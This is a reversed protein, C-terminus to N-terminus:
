LAGLVPQAIGEPVLSQLLYKELASQFDAFMPFATFLALMVTMLPVLGVLTTFTLSGATLGLHDEVFRQRMTHWTDAWPWTRLTQWLAALHAPWTAPTYSTEQVPEVAGPGAATGESPPSRLTRSLWRNMGVIMGAWARMAWPRCCRQAPWRRAPPAAPAAPRTSRARSPRPTTARGWRHVSAPASPVAAPM